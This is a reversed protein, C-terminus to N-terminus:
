KQPSVTAELADMREARIAGLRWISIGALSYRKALGVKQPLTEPTEYAAVIGLLVKSRDVDQLTMQIAQEVRDAPEPNGDQVYDHAMVQLLDAVEGLAKYDYGRYAGNPPHVSVVVQKGLPHLRDAVAKVLYTFGERLKTLEAGTETLGLGELDINVGDFGKAVAIDAIQLAVGQMFPKDKVLETIENNRDTAHVMLFRRTGAQAAEALIAEGTVDGDPMPWRYESQGGLEVKGEPTLRAWGFAVDSFRPIYGKESYSAIAYYGLLRMPRVPSTLSVTNTAPDWGVKAGFASSFARLPILTRDNVVMPAVDLLQAQGNVWMTRDGITLRVATGATTAEVTQTEARWTVTVGLAEAIARFPVMTRDQVIMPPVPFPLPLGDLLIVPAPPAATGAARVSVAPLLSLTLMLILSM